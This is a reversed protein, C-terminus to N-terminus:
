GGSSPNTGPEGTYSLKYLQGRREALPQDLSSSHVSGISEVALITETDYPLRNNARDQNSGNWK